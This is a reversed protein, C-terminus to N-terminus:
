LATEIKGFASVISIPSTKKPKFLDLPRRRFFARCWRRWVGVVVAAPAQYRDAAVHHLFHEYFNGGNIERQKVIIYRLANNTM